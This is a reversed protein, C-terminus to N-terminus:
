GTPFTSRPRPEARYGGASLLGHSEAPEADSRGCLDLFPQFPDDSYLYNDKIRMQWHKAFNWLIRANAQQNLTTYTSNAGFTMGTLNVGGIYGLQILSTVSDALLAIGGASMVMNQWYSAQGTGGEVYNNLTGM